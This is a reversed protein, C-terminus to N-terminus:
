NKWTAPTAIGIAVAAMAAQTRNEVVLKRFASALHAKVTKESLFLHRSIQRNTAGAALIGLVEVERRTLGTAQVAPESRVRAGTVAGARSLNHAARPSIMNGSGSRALRVAAAMDEPGADKLVYGAAGAALAASVVEADDSASLIVV